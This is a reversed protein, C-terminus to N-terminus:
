DLAKPTVFYGCKFSPATKAISDRVSYSSAIDDRLRINASDDEVISYVPAIGETNVSELITLWKLISNVEKIYVEVEEESMDICSLMELREMDKKNVRM